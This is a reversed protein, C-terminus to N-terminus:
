QSVRTVTVHASLNGKTKYYLRLFLTVSNDIDILYLCDYFGTPTWIFGVQKYTTFDIYKLEKFFFTKQVSVYTQSFYM